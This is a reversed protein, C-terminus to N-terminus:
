YYNLERANVVTQAIHIESITNSNMMRFNLRCRFLSGSCEQVGPGPRADSLAATPRHAALRYCIRDGVNMVYDVERVSGAAL